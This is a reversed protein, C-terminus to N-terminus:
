PMKQAYTTNLKATTNTQEHSYRDPPLCMLANKLGLALLLLLSIRLRCRSIPSSFAYIVNRLPHHLSSATSKLLRLDLLYSPKFHYNHTKKKMRQKQVINHACPYWKQKSADLRINEHM